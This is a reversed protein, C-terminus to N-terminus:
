AANRTEHLFISLHASESEGELTITTNAKRNLQQQQQKVNLVHQESANNTHTHTHTLSHSRYLYFRSNITSIFSLKLARFDVLLRSSPSSSPSDFTVVHLVYVCLCVHLIFCVYLIVNVRGVVVLSISRRQPGTRLKNVHMKRM